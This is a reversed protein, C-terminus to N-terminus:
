RLDESGACDFCALVEARLDRVFARAREAATIIGLSEDLSTM